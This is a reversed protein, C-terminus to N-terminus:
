CGNRFTGDRTSQVTGYRIGKDKGRGGKLYKMVVAECTGGRATEISFEIIDNHGLYLDKLVWHTPNLKAAEYDARKVEIVVEVSLNRIRHFCMDLDVTTIDETITRIRIVERAPM